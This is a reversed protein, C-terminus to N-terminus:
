GYKSWRLKLALEIQSVGLNQKLNKEYHGHECFNNQQNPNIKKLYMLNTKLKKDFLPCRRAASVSLGTM